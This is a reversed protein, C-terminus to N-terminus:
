CSGTRRGEGAFSFPANNAIGQSNIQFLNKGEIRITTRGYGQAGCSYSVTTVNPKDEIVFPKDCSQGQHRIKLLQAANRVCMKRSQADNGRARIEWEGATIKELAALEPAQAPAPVAFVALLAAAMLALVRRHKWTRFPMEMGM